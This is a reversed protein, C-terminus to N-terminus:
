NLKEKTDPTPPLTVIDVGEDHLERAENKTAVGRIAMPEVEGYHIRRAQEPFEPGVDIFNTDVYDHIRTLLTQEANALCASSDRQSSLHRNIRSATLLKAVESIGCVPCCLLGGENQRLFDEATKFWGEFRHEHACCLDYIIM